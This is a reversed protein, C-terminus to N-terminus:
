RYCAILLQGAAEYVIYIDRDLTATAYRGPAAGSGTFDATDIWQASEDTTSSPKYRVTSFGNTTPVFLHLANIADRAGTMTGNAESALSTLLTQGSPDSQGLDVWDGGLRALATIAGTADQWSLYLGSPIFVLSDSDATGSTAAFGGPKSWNNDTWSYMNMTFSADSYAITPQNDLAEFAFVSRGPATRDTGAPAFPAPGLHLWKNISTNYRLVLLQQSADLVALHVQQGIRRLKLDIITTNSLGNEECDTQISGLEEWAKTTTNYTLVRLIGASGADQFASYWTQNARLTQYPTNDAVVRGPSPVPNSWQSAPDKNDPEWARITINGAADLYSFYLIQGAAFVQPASGTAALLVPSEDWSYQWTIGSFVPSPQGANGWPDAPTIRYYYPQDWIIDTDIYALGATQALLKWADTSADASDARYIYYVGANRVANWKITIAPSDGKRGTAQGAPADTTFSYWGNCASSLLVATLLLAALLITAARNSPRTTHQATNM